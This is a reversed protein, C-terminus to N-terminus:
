VSEVNEIWNSDERGPGVKAQLCYGNLPEPKRHNTITTTVTKPMPAAPLWKFFFNGKSQRRLFCQHQCRACDRGWPQTHQCSFTLGQSGAAWLSTPSGSVASHRRGRVSRAGRKALIVALTVALSGCCPLLPLGPLM